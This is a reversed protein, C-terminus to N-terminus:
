LSEQVEQKQLSQQRTEKQLTDATNQVIELKIIVSGTKLLLPYFHSGRTKDEMFGRVFGINSLTAVLIAFVFFVKLAGFCFGFIRNITSLASVNIVKQLIEALLLAGGWVLVLVVLFGILKIASINNFTYINASIWEGVSSAYVSAVYVGGVIGALGLFERIFGNIVGRIALLLILIGVVIDFWSFDGM